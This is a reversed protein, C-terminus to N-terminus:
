PHPGIRHDIRVAALIRADAADVTALDPLGVSTVALWCHVQLGDISGRLHVRLTETSVEVLLGFRKTIEAAERLFRALQRRPETSAVFSTLLVWASAPVFALDGYTLLLLWVM